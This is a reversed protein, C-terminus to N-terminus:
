PKPDFSEHQALGGTLFVYIVARPRRPAPSDGRLREVDAMSLGMMGLTGAQLIERRSWGGHHM